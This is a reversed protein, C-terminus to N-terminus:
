RPLVEVRGTTFSSREGDAYGVRYEAVIKDGERSVKLRARPGVDTAEGSIVLEVPEGDVTAVVKPFTFKDDGARSGDRPHWSEKSHEIIATMEYRTQDLPRVTVSIATDDTQRHAQGSPSACGILVLPLFLVALTTKM